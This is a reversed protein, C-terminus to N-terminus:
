NTCTFEVKLGDYGMRVEPPLLANAADHDLFHGVHTLWTEEAEVRRAFHVAEDFSLHFHSTEPRLASLVLKRVGKLMTFISADYERIDSIYAFDGVRFGTVKMPGQSFSCYSIPIGLFETQGMERELLSFELKASLVPDDKRFFYYYRKQIEEFSEQSLLCPFPKKQRINFIRLEDIGAIHDYHTHTLLLGDLHDVGFKIAQSHFDPGVDILFSLGGIQIWGSPRFRKNKPLPSTCVACKCGIM